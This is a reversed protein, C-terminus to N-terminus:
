RNGVGLTSMSSAVLTIYPSGQYSGSANVLTVGATLDTLDIEIPGQIPTAGINKVTINQYFNGTGPNYTTGSLTYSTQSTVNTPAPASSNVTQTLTASTSTAYNGNSPEFIAYVSNMGTTMFTDSSSTATGGSLPVPSGFPSGNVYFQVSGLPTGSGPPSMASVVATFTVAQGTVSPNASSSVTTFTPDALVTQGGSLTGSSAAYNGQPNYSATIVQNSGVPLQFAGTTYSAVGGSLTGM